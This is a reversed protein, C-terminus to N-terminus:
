QGGALNRLALNQLEQDIGQGLTLRPRYFTLMRTPDGIRSMVGAPKDTLYQIQDDTVHHGLAQAMRAALAGFRVGVGSCLNVPLREDAQYVALAGRVVDRIHIWDRRQGRTGWV